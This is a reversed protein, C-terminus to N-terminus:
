KKYFPAPLNWLTYLQTNQIEYEIPNICDHNGLTLYWPKGAISGDDFIEEVLMRIKDDDPGDVKNYRNDGATIVMDIPREKAVAKMKAAVHEVAWTDDALKYDKRLEGFDGVVHLRMPGSGSYQYKVPMVQENESQRFAYLGMCAVSLVTAVILGRRM